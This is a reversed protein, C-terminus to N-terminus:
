PGKALDPHITRTSLNPVPTRQAHNPNIAPKGSQMRIEMGIKDFKATLGRVQQVATPQPSKALPEKTTGAKPLVKATLSKFSQAVKSQTNM